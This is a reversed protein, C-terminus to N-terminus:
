EGLYTIRRNIYQKGIHVATELNKIDMEGSGSIMIYGSEHIYFRFRGFDLSISDHKVILSWDLDDFEEENIRLM